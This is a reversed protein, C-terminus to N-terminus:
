GFDYHIKPVNFICPHKTIKIIKPLLFPNDNAAHGNQDKSVRLLKKMLLFGRMVGVKM